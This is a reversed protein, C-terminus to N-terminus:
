IHKSKKSTKRSSKRRISRRKKSRRTTSRINTRNQFDFFMDFVQMNARGGGSQLLRSRNRYRDYSKYIGRLSGLLLLLCFFFLLAMDVNKFGNGTKYENYENRVISDYKSLGYDSSGNDLLMADKIGTRRLMYETPITLATNVITNIPHFPQNDIYEKHHETIFNIHKKFTNSEKILNQTLRDRFVEVNKYLVEKNYGKVEIKAYKKIFPIISEEVLEKSTLLRKDIIDTPNELFDIITKSGSNLVYSVFGITSTDIELEDVYVSLWNAYDEESVKPFDFEQDNVNYIYNYIQGTLSTALDMITSAREKPHSYRLIDNYVDEICMKVDDIGSKIINKVVKASKDTLNIFQNHMFTINMLTPYFLYTFLGIILVTSVNRSSTIHKFSTNYIICTLLYAMNWAIFVDFASIGYIAQTTAAIASSEISARIINYRSMQIDIIRGILPINSEKSLTRKLEKRLEKNEEELERLYKTPSKPLSM